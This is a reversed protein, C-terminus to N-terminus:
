NAEYVVFVCVCESEKHTHTSRIWTHYMQCFTQCGIWDFTELEFYSRSETIDFCTFMTRARVLFLLYTATITRFCKRMQSAPIAISPLQLCYTIIGPCTPINEIVIRFM